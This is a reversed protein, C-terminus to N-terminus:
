SKFCNNFKYEAKYWVTRILIQSTFDEKISKSLFNSRTYILVFKQFIADTKNQKIIPKLFLM